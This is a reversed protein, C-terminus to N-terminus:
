FNTRFYLLYKGFVARSCHIGRPRPTSTNAELVQKMDVESKNWCDFSKIDRGSRSNEMYQLPRGLQVEAQHTAQLGVFRRGFRQPGSRPLHNSRSREDRNAPESDGFEALRSLKNADPCAPAM